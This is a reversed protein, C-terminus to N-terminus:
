LEDSRHLFDQFFDRLVLGLLELPKKYYAVFMAPETFLFSPYEDITTTFKIPM